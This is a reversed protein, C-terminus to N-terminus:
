LGIFKDLDRKLIEGVESNKFTIRISPIIMEDESEDVNNINQCM